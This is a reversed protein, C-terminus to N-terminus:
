STNTVTRPPQRVEPSYKREVKRSSSPTTGLRAPITELRRVKGTPQVSM